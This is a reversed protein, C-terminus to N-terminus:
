NEHVCYGHQRIQTDGQNRCVMPHAREDWVGALDATLSATFFYTICATLLPFSPSARPAASLRRPRPADARDRASGQRRFRAPSRRQSIAYAARHLEREMQLM